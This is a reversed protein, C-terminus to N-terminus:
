PSTPMISSLSPLSWRTTCWSTGSISVPLRSSVWGYSPRDWTSAWTSATATTVDMRRDSHHMRHFRWLFPIAHNARHWVYMWGDLLVLALMVRIPQALGVFNLLGLQNEDAWEAIRATIFGFVLGLILTNFLAIALNHAAHRVRGERQGFYPRWTEWCWFTALLVVPVLLRIQRLDDLQVTTTAFVTSHM